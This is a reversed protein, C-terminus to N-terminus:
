LACVLIVSNSEHDCGDKRPEDQFWIFLSFRNYGYVIIFINILGLEARSSFTLHIYRNNVTYTATTVAEALLESMRGSIGSIRNKSTSEAMRNKDKAINGQLELDAKTKLRLAAGRAGCMGTRARHRTGAIFCAGQPTGFTLSNYRVRTILPYGTNEYCSQMTTVECCAASTM